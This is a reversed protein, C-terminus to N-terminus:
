PLGAVRFRRRSLPPGESEGGRLGWLDPAPPLLSFDGEWTGGVNPPKRLKGGVPASRPAKPLTLGRGFAHKVFCFLHEVIYALVSLGLV